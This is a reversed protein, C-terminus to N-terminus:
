RRRWRSLVVAAGAVAVITRLIHRTQRRQSQELRRQVAAGLDLEFTGDDLREVLAMLRQARPVFNKAFDVGADAQTLMWDFANTRSSEAVLPACIALLDLEPDLRLCLGVVTILAKGLFTAQGPLVIPQSFIFQQMQTLTEADITLNYQGSMMSGVIPASTYM